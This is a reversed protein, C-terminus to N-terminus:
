YKIWYVQTINVPRAETGGNTNTTLNHTHAGASNTSGGVTINTFANGGGAGSAGTERISQYTFSHSHLGNSDTTGTHSHSLNQSAQTTGFVRGPDQGRGDDFGRTFMGRADPLRFQLATESGTNWTTGIKAFLAPYSARVLVAGNCKLWGTDPIGNHWVAKSEGVSSNNYLSNGLNRWFGNTSLPDNGLNNDALSEYFNAGVRATAGTMYPTEPLWGMAGIREIDQLAQDARNQLYNQNGAKPADKDAGGEYGFAFQQNTPKKFSSDDGPDNPANAWIENFSYQRPM